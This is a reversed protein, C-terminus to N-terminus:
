PARLEQKALDGATVWGATRGQRVYYYTTGEIQSISVVEITQGASLYGSPDAQGAAPTKVLPTKRSVVCQSGVTLAHADVAAGAAETTTDGAPNSAPQQCSTMIALVALSATCMTLNTMTRMTEVRNTRPGARM